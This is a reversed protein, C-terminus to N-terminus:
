QMEIATDVPESLTRLTRELRIESCSLNKLDQKFATSSAEKMKAVSIRKRSATSQRDHSDSSSTCRKMGTSLCPQIASKRMRSKITVKKDSYSQIAPTPLTLDNCDKGTDEEIWLTTVEKEQLLEPFFFTYICYMCTHM